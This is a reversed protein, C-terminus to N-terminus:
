SNGEAVRGCYYKINSNMEGGMKLGHKRELLMSLDLFLGVNEGLLYINDVVWRSVDMIGCIELCKRLGVGCGM